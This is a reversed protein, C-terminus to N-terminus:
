YVVLGHCRLRRGDTLSSIFVPWLRHYAAVPSSLCSPENWEHIFTHTTPFVTHDRTLVHWESRKLRSTSISQRMETALSRIAQAYPRLRFKRQTVWDTSNYIGSSSIKEKDCQRNENLGAQRCYEISTTGHKAAMSTAASSSRKM